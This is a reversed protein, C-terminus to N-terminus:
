HVLITATLGLLAIVALPVMVRRGLERSGLWLAIGGKFLTNVIITLMIGRAALLPDLGEKAQQSLSIVAADVQALGSVGSIAYIGASAGRERAIAVLLSVVAFAAAFKLAPGLEFPNVHQTEHYEDTGQTGRLHRHMLWTCALTAVLLTGMPVACLPMLAPNVAAVELAVRPVMMAGALVIGLALPSSLSEITRSRKANSLTVATSSALGGVLSSVVIGRQAGIVKTLAYGLFGIGAILVVMLWTKWLNFASYPGFAERPLIPLIIFTVVAFKLTAVMDEQGMGHVFSHMSQKASLVVTTAVALVGAVTLQGCMALAGLAYTLLGSVETTMGLGGPGTRKRLSEIYSAVTIAGLVLLGAAPIWTEGFIMGLYTGAAGLLSILAMTRMGTTSGEKESQAYERELGIFMGICLAIALRQLAEQNSPIPLAM